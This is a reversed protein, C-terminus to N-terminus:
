GQAIHDCTMFGKAGEKRIFITHGELENKGRILDGEIEGYLIQPFCIQLRAEGLRCSDANIYGPVNWKLGTEEAERCIAM